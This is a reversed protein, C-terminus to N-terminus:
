ISVMFSLSDPSHFVSSQHATHSANMKNASAGNTGLMGLGELHTLSGSLDTGGSMSTGKSVKIIPRPKSVDNARTKM